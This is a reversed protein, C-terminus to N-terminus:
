LERLTEVFVIGAQHGLDGEAGVAADAGEAGVDDGDIRLFFEEGGGGLPDRNLLRTWRTWRTWRTFGTWFPWVADARVCGEKKFGFVKLVM